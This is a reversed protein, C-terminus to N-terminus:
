PRVTYFQFSVREYQQANEILVAAQWHMRRQSCIPLLTEAFWVGEDQVNFTARNLGMEMNLGTIDIQLPRMDRREASNLKFQLTQMLPVPRPTIELTLRTGNSLEAECVSQDLLCDDVVVQHDVGQYDTGQYDLGSSALFLRAGWFGALVLVLLGIM